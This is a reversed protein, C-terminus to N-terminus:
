AITSLLLVVRGAELAHGEILASVLKLSLNGYSAVAVEEAIVWGGFKRMAGITSRGPPHVAFEGSDVSPFYCPWVPPGAVSPGPPALRLLVM